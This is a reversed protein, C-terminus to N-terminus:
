DNFIRDSNKAMWVPPQWTAGADTSRAVFLGGKTLDEQDYGIVSTYATGDAAWDVVPDSQNPLDAPLGAMYSDAWTTGGDTSRYHWVQKTGARWDKAAVLVNNPNAPDIALSPEQQQDTADQNARVNPGVQVPPAASGVGAGLGALLGLALLVGLAFRFWEGRAVRYSTM